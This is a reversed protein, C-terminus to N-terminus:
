PHHFVDCPVALVLVQKSRDAVVLLQQDPVRPLRRVAGCKVGDFSMLRLDITQGEIGEVLVDKCGTRRVLRNRKMVDAVQAGPQVSKNTVRFFDELYSPIRLVLSDQTRATCIAPQHNPVQASDALLLRGLVGLVTRRLQQENVATVSRLDRVKRPVLVVIPHHRRHRLVVDELDPAHGLVDVVVVCRRQRCTRRRRSNTEIPLHM